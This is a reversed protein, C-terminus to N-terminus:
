LYAPGKPQPSIYQPAPLNAYKCLTNAFQLIMGKSAVEGFVLYKATRYEGQPYYQIELANEVKVKESRTRGKADIASAVAMADGGIM